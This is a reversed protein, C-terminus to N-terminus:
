KGELQKIGNIDGEMEEFSVNSASVVCAPDPLRCRAAFIGADKILISYIVYVNFMMLVM